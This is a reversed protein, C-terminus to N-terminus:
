ALPPLAAYFLPCSWGFVATLGGVDLKYYNKIKLFFYKYEIYEKQPDM